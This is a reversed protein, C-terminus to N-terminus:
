SRRKIANIVMAPENDVLPTLEYGAYINIETFGAEELLQRIEIPNFLRYRLMYAQQGEPSIRTFVETIIKQPKDYSREVDVYSDGGGLQERTKLHTEVYAPLQLEVIFHGGNRLARATNVLLQVNDDTDNVQGLTTFLCIALDFESTFDLDEGRMQRFKLKLRGDGVKENAAAIMAESPDIGLVDFGRRALEISHRGAGCGIDLIRSGPKVGTIAVIFDVEDATREPTLLPHFLYPSGQEFFNPKM